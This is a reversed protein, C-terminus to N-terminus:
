NSPPLKQHRQELSASRHLWTYLVPAGINLVMCSDKEFTFLLLKVLLYHVHTM